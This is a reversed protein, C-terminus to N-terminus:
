SWSTKMRNYCQADVLYQTLTATTIDSFKTSVHNRHKIAWFLLLKQETKFVFYRCVCTRKTSIRASALLFETEELDVWFASQPSLLIVIYYKLGITNMFSFFSESHGFSRTKNRIEAVQIATNQLRNCKNFKSQRNRLYRLRTLILLNKNGKTQLVAQSSSTSRLRPLQKLDM